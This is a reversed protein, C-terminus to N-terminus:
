EFGNSGHIQGTIARAFYMKEFKSTAVDFDVKNGPLSWYLLYTKNRVFVTENFKINSEGNDVINKPKYFYKM